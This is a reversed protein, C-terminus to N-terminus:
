KIKLKFMLLHNGEYGKGTDGHHGMPKTKRQGLELSFKLPRHCLNCHTYFAIAKQSIPVEM